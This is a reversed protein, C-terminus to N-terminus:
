HNGAYPSSSRAPRAAPVSTTAPGTDVTASSSANSAARAAADAHATASTQGALARRVAANITQGPSPAAAGDPASATTASVESVSGAHTGTRIAGNAAVTVRIRSAGFSRVANTVASAATGNRLGTTVSSPRSRTGPDVARSRTGRDVQGVASASAGDDGPRVSSRGSRTVGEGQGTAASTSRSAGSRDTQDTSGDDPQANAIPTVAIVGASAIALGATLYSRVSVKM